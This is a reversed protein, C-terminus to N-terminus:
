VLIKTKNNKITSSLLERERNYDSDQTNKSNSVGSAFIIFRDNNQYSEFRKALFGHGIVMM